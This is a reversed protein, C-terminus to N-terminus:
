GNWRGFCFFRWDLSVSSQFSIATEGSPLRFDDASDTSRASIVSASGAMIRQLYGNSEDYDLVFTQGGSLGLGAFTMQQGGAAVTVVNCTTGTNNVAEIRMLGGGSATVNLRATGTTGRASVSAAESSEWEPMWWARFTVAYNEAWRTIGTQAPMTLVNVFIRKDPKYNLELWGGNASWDRVAQLIDERETLDRIENVAFRITIDRYRKESSAIRQGYQSATSTATVNWNPSAEEVTQLILKQHLDSFKIGGLTAEVRTKM